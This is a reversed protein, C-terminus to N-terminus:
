EKPLFANECADPLNRRAIGSRLAHRREHLLHRRLAPLGHLRRRQSPAQANRRGGAISASGDSLRGPLARLGFMERCRHPPGFLAKRSGSQRSEGIKRPSTQACPHTELPQGPGARFARRSANQSHPKAGGSDSSFFRRRGADVKPAGRLTELELPLHLEACIKRVIEIRNTIVSLKEEDVSGPAYLLGIEKAGLAVALLIWDVSLHLLSPLLIKKGTAGANPAAFVIRGQPAERRLADELAKSTFAPAILADEPCVSTCAGCGTCRSAAFLLRKEKLVLAEEPCIDVCATCTSSIHRTRLCRRGALLPKADDHM